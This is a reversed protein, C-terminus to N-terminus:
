KASDKKPMSDAPKNAKAISDAKFVSDAQAKKASDRRASDLLEKAQKEAGCSALLFLSTVAAALFIKKM